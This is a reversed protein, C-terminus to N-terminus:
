CFSVKVYSPYNNGVTSYKIYLLNTISNRYVLIDRGSGITGIITPNESDTSIEVVTWLTKTLSAQSGGSSYLKEFDVYNKLQAIGIVRYNTDTSIVGVWSNVSSSILVWEKWSTSYVRKYVDGSAITAFTQYSYVDESTARYTTLVGGLNTPFGANAYNGIHTITFKGATFSSLPTTNDIGTNLEIIKNSENMQVWSFFHDTYIRKYINDGTPYWMQFKFNDFRYTVLTGGKNEPFGANQYNGIEAISIKNLPFESIDSNNNYTLPPLQKIPINSSGDKAISISNYTASYGAEFINGHIKYGDSLTTIPINLSQVYTILDRLYQQQTENFDPSFPHLCFIAWGNNAIAEDVKSKYFELTDQGTTNYYGGLPIRYLRFSDVVGKNVGVQYRYGSKYYKKAIREVTENSAGVPYVIHNIKFGMNELQQKSNALENEIESETLETLSSHTVTHSAFEWGHNNQLDIRISLDTVNNSTLACTAPVGFEDLIPKMITLDQAFGDDSTFSVIPIKVIDQINELSAKEALQSANEVAMNHANMAIDEIFLDM